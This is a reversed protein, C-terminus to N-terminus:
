RAAIPAPSALLPAVAATIEDLDDTAALLYRDPRLVMLSIGRREFWEKLSPDPDPLEDLTTVWAGLVDAWWDATSSLGEADRALVLFRSGVADDLLRGGVTPQGFLRGGGDQVLPGAELVPLRFLLASHDERVQRDRDVAQEPDTVAVLAGFDIAREVIARVHPSREQQYTDLLADPAGSRLVHELKWALNTADRFGSCMGQGLFPPMQHAADGALLVRGHRWERALLGHFTYVAAREVTVSGNGVLTELLASVAAPDQMQEPTEGPLLKCEIRHRNGPMPIVVHPRGPSCYYIAKQPLDLGSGDLQLDIVLWQEHFGLDELEIGLAERIPSTAGDCAVVYSGRVEFTEDTRLDRARVRVSNGEDEVSEAATELRLAVQPLGAVAARLATDFGPQHFYVSTPVGSWTPMDAPQRMLLGDDVGIFDIGPNLITSPLVEDLCGLEQVARLGTHDIHAARPLPFVTASRELVVVSLGRKGLLGALVTGVPGLGVIVVDAELTDATSTPTTGL